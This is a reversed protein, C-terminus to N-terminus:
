FTQIRSDFLFICAFSGLIARRSNRAEIPLATPPDAISRAIAASPMPVDRDAQPEDEAAGTGLGTGDGGGGGGPTM